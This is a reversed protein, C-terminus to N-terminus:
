CIKHSEVPFSSQYVQAENEKNRSGSAKERHQNKKTDNIKGVHIVRHQSRLIRSTFIVLGLSQALM